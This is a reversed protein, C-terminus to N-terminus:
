GLFPDHFRYARGRENVPALHALAAQDSIGQNRLAGYLQYFEGNLDGAFIGPDDSGLSVMIEPDGKEVFGPVRMWRLAHHESFNHYQSIRVNSSPLTEVVVNRHAVERMLAQQLQLYTIEDFYAADVSELSESRQCLNEDSLWEWLLNLHHPNSHKAARIRLAEAQWIDNLPTIDVSWDTEFAAQLYRVNLHRLGMAAELEACSIDRRFVEGACKALDDAVRSAAATAEPLTRLLRWAALLDLMWEGKKVVLQGPMRELWLKPAIGMATGHGIRDGDRLDLLELADYM